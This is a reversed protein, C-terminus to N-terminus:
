LGSLDTTREDYKAKMNSKFNDYLIELYARPNPNSDM